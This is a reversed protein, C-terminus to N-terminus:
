GLVRTALTYVLYAGAGAVALMAVMAWRAKTSLPELDKRMAVRMGVMLAVGAVGALALLLGIVQPPLYPM